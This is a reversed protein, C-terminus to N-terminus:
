QKRNELYSKCWDFSADRFGYCYLKKLLIMHDVTDFAKSLDILIACVFKNKELSQLIHEKVSLSASSTSFRNRFGSQNPHLINNDMIFTIMQNYVLKEFVKMSTSLVSIPRYNGAKDKDDSKYIPSVKKTKWLKPVSGTTISFNFLFALKSSLVPSGEKLLHPSISDIGSAKNTDLSSIIKAVDTSSFLSFNFTNIPGNVNIKSADTDPFKSVLKAGINIFFDNFHNSISKDDNIVSGDELTMDGIKCSANKDPILQKIRKWLKKPDDRTNDIENAYYGGKLRSKLKNVYNQRRKFASWDSPKRSLSAVKLLYDHEKIATLFDENIWGAAKGKVKKHSLLAHRDAIESVINNFALTAEVVDISNFFLSWDAKNLDDLFLQKNFNTLNRYSIVKPLFKPRKCKRICYILNHDSLGFYLSGSDTISQSNTFILDIISSLHETIRTPSDILQSLNSSQCFDKM